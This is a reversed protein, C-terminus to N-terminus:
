KCDSERGGDARHQPDGLHHPARDRGGSLPRLLLPSPVVGAEAKVEAGGAAPGRQPGADCVPSLSWKCSTGKTKKLPISGCYSLVVRILYAAFFIAILNLIIKPAELCVTINKFERVACRGKLFWSSVCQGILVSFYVSVIVTFTKMLKLSLSINQQTRLQGM